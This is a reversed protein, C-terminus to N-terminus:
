RGEGGSEHSTGGGAGRSSGPGGEVRVNGTVTQRLTSGTSGVMTGQGGGSSASHSQGTTHTQSTGQGEGASASGTEGPRGSTTTESPVTAPSQGAAAGGASASPAGERSEETVQGIEILPLESASGPGSRSLDLILFSAIAVLLLFGAGIAPLASRRALPIM